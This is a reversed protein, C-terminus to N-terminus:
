DYLLSDILKKKSFLLKNSQFLEELGLKPNKAKIRIIARLLPNEDAKEVKAGYFLDRWIKLKEFRTKQAYNRLILYYNREVQLSEESRDAFAQLTITLALFSIFIALITPLGAMVTQAPESRFFYFFYSEFIVIIIIMFANLFGFKYNFFSNVGSDKYEKDVRRILDLNEDTEQKKSMSGVLNLNSQEVKLEKYKQNTTPRSPVGM